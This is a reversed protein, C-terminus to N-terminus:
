GQRRALLTFAGRKEMVKFDFDNILREIENDLAEKDLFAYHGSLGNMLSKGNILIYDVDYNRYESFTFEHEFAEPHNLGFEYVYRRSSVAPLLDGSVTLSADRPIL